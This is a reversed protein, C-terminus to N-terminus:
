TRRGRDVESASIMEDQVSDVQLTVHAIGFRDRLLANTREVLRSAEQVTTNGWVRIHGTLVVHGTTVTWVHLDHIGLVGPVAEIAAAVEAPDVDAPSEELIVRVGDRVLRAAGIAILAVILLSIALDFEVIGTVQILVAGSVVGVSGLTDGFAHLFAGRANINRRAWERLLALMALNAALGAAGVVLMIGGEVPSPHLYRGFAEIGLFVAVGVLLLANALAALVEMRHYGFSMRATHPRRSLRLAWVALGLGVADTGVHGADSLLALSNSLWSGAIELAAAAVAILIAAELRRELSARPAHLDEVM